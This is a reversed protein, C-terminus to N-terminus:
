NLAVVYVGDGFVYTLRRGDPSFALGGDDSGEHAAVVERQGTEADIVILKSQGDGHMWLALRRGDPSWDASTLVAHEEILVFAQGLPRSTGTGVELVMPQTYDVYFARIGAPSWHFNLTPAPQQGGDESDLSLPTRRGDELSVVAYSRGATRCIVDEGDPSAEVLGLCGM